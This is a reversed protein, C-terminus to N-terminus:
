RKAAVGDYFRPIGNLGLENYYPFDYIITVTNGDASELFCGKLMFTKYDTTMVNIDFRPPYPTISSGINKDFESLIHPEIMEFDRRSVTVYYFDIVQINLGLATRQCNIGLDDSSINLRIAIM